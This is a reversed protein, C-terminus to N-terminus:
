AGAQTEGRMFWDKASMAAAEMAAIREQLSFANTLVGATNHCFSNRLAGMEVQSSLRIGEVLRRTLV